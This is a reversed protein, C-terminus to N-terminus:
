ACPFLIFLSSRTLREWQLRRGEWTGFRAKIKALTEDMLDKDFTVQGTAPYGQTGSERRSTGSKVDVTSTTALLSSAAVTASSEISKSEVDMTNESEFSGTVSRLPAIPRSSGPLIGVWVPKALPILSVKLRLFAFDPGLEMKGDFSGDSKSITFRVVRGSPWGNPGKGVSEVDVIEVPADVGGDRRATFHVGYYSVDRDEPGNVIKKKEVTAKPKKEVPVSPIGHPDVLKEAWANFPKALKAYPNKAKKSDSAYIKNKMEVYDSKSMILLDKNDFTPKPDLNLLNTVAEVKEFEVFISGKFKGRDKLFVKNESDPAPPKDERRMRVTKVKGIDLARAWVEIKKQLEEEHDKIAAQDEGSEGGVPFGKVYAIRLFVDEPRRLQVTRRVFWENVFKRTELQNSRGAVLTSAICDLSGLGDLFVRMRKFSTLTSLKIWGQYFPSIASKKTSALNPDIFDSPAPVSTIKNSPAAFSSAWLTFLFKDFPLNSDSLYFEIQTVLAQELSENPLPAGAPTNVDADTAAVPPAKESEPQPEIIEMPISQVEQMSSSAPTPSGTRPKKPSSHQQQPASDDEDEVPRKRSQTTEITLNSFIRPVDEDERSGFAPHVDSM